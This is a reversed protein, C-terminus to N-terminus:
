ISGIVASQLERPQLLLRGAARDLNKAAPASPEALLYPIGNLNAQRVRDDFDIPSLCDMDIGLHKFCLGAMTPGLRQDNVHRANNVVLWPRFSEATRQLEEGVEEDIERIAVLLDWPSAIGRDNKESMAKQVLETVSKASTVSSLRRYFCAKVFRFVAQVSGPEPAVVVVGRDALLFFDIVNWSMGAGIDLVTFDADLCRIQRLLRQKQLHKLNAALLCDHAGSVLTLNEVRTCVRVDEIHEVKRHILDALTVKPPPEGLAAHLNAGGLDTDVMVVTQGRRALAIGLSSAVFSKGVGGKGGGVAVIRSRPRSPPASKTPCLEKAKPLFFSAPDRKTESM